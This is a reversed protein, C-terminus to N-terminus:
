FASRRWVRPSQPSTGASSARALSAAMSSPQRKSEANRSRRPTLNQILKELRLRRIRTQREALGAEEQGGAFGEIAGGDWALGQVSRLDMGATTAIRHTAM